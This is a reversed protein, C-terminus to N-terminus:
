SSTTTPYSPLVQLRAHTASNRGPKRGARRCGQSLSHVCCVTCAATSLSDMSHARSVTANLPALTTGGGSFVLTSSVEHFPLSDRRYSPGVNNSRRSTCIAGVSCHRATSCPPQPGSGAWPCIRCKGSSVSCPILPRVVPQTLGRRNGTGSCQFEGSSRCVDFHRVARTADDPSRGGRVSGRHRGFRWAVASVPTVGSSKSGATM